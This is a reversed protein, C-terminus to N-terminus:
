GGPLREALRGALAVPDFARDPGGARAPAAWVPAPFHRDDRFRPIVHWHLHPVANGLSALNVKDPSLLERLAAEVEFVVRMLRAREEPALDTMERVHRDLIVRCFGPYDPDGAAVVRCFGDRWLVTGGPGACLECDPSTELLATM